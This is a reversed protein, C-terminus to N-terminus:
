VLINQYNDIGIGMSYELEKNILSQYNMYDLNRIAAIKFEFEDGTEFVDDYGHQLEFTGDSFRLCPIGRMLAEYYATTNVTIAFDFDKNNLCENVTKGKDVISMGYESAYQSCFGFDSIPHMKLCFEYVSIYRSLITLLAVNSHHYFNRALLVICKKFSNERKMPQLLSRKPYGAVVIRKPSIGYSVFEDKTYQGWSLLHETEFNEYQISDFPPNNRSFIFYVGEMLSYTPINKQRMYQTLLNEIGLANYMSLYKETRSFDVKEFELLLNGYFVMDAALDIRNRLSLQRKPCFFKLVRLILLPHFTIKRKWKLLSFSVVNNGLKEIVSDYVEQHDKRNQQGFTSFIPKDIRMPHPNFVMFAKVIHKFSFREKKNAINWIKMTLVRNLHIGKYVFDVSGKLEKYREFDNPHGMYSFALELYYIVGKAKSM